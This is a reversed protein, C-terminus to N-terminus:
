ASSNGNIRSNQEILWEGLVKLPDSPQERVLMKMGELLYPTVNENIYQRAPAGGPPIQNSASLTPPTSSVNGPTNPRPQHQSQTTHSSPQQGSPPLHHQGSPISSVQAQYTGLAPQTSYGQQTHIPGALPNPGQSQSPRPQSHQTQTSSQAQYQSQQASTPPQQAGQPYYNSQKPSHEAPWKYSEQGPNPPDHHHGPAGPQQKHPPQYYQQQHPPANGTLMNMSMDARTRVPSIPQDSHNSSKSDM